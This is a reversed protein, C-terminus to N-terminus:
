CAILLCDVVVKGQTFYKIRCPNTTFHCTHPPLQDRLSSTFYSPIPSKPLVKAGPDNPGPVFLFKSKTLLVSFELLLEALEDFCKKYDQVDSSDKGFPSSTFNGMFVFMAPPTDLTSFGEFMMRLKVMVNPDDLHVDSLLVFMTEEAELELKKLEPEEQQSYGTMLSLDISSMCSLADSRSEPPPFGM